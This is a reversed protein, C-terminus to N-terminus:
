VFAQSWDWSLNAVTGVEGNALTVLAGRMDRVVTRRLTLTEVRGMTEGVQITDGPAFQDEILIHIGAVVDRVSNQAGIGVALVGAGAVIVAPWVVIGFEPLAMFIAVIWVVSYAARYLTDALARMQQEHAQAAKAQSAAPKALRNTIKRLFRCILLAFIAIALLRLGQPITLSFWSTLPSSMM